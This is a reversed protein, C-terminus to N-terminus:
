QLHNNLYLTGNVLWVFVIRESKSQMIRKVFLTRAAGAMAGQHYWVFYIPLVHRFFSDENCCGSKAVQCLILSELSFETRLINTKVLKNEM